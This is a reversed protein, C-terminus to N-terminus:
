GHPVRILRACLASSLETACCYRFRFTAKFGTSLRPTLGCFVEDDAVHDIAVAELSKRIEHCITTEVVLEGGPKLGFEIEDRVACCIWRGDTVRAVAAYGMGTSRCVIELIRAVGDIRQIAGIDAAFDSNM